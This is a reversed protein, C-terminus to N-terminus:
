RRPSSTARQTSSSVAPSPQGDVDVFEVRVGLLRVPRDLPFRGLVLRAADVITGADRAPAPLTTIKTRTFFTSTRVTVAVRRVERGEDVAEGAVTAAIAAVEAEIESRDTLDVPFTIVHSRGRAVRPLTTVDTDGIGRGLLILSPGITPGFARALRQVDANALEAVTHIGLADLRAAIRNGIGWLAV